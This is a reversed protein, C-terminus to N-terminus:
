PDSGLKGSPADGVERVVHEGGAGGGRGAVEEAAPEEAGWRAGESIRASCQEYFFPRLPNGVEWKEVTEEFDTMANRLPFFYTNTNKPKGQLEPPGGRGVHHRVGHLGEEAGELAVAGPARGGEGKAVGVGVRM